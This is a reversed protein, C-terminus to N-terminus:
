DATLWDMVVGATTSFRFLICAFLNCDGHRSHSCRGDFYTITTLSDVDKDIVATNM